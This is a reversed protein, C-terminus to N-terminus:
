PTHKGTSSDLTAGVFARFLPSPRTMRSKFEPHFQVAVFWPHTGRPLEFAEINQDDPSHGVLHLNSDMLLTRFLNNIKYKHRFREYILLEGYAAALLSDPALKIPIAGKRLPAIKEDEEINAAIPVIIPFPTERNFEMSDAEPNNAVNRAFEILACQMGQGIALTPKRSERAYRIAHILGDAGREGYGGPLIIGDLAHLREQANHANIEEAHIWEINVKARNAIGAHKFAETVSYYADRFEVYKGVLGITVTQTPKIQTLAEWEALDPPPPTLGLRGCVIQAFNEKELLLPVEYLCDADTNEIICNQNVHCFQSIKKRMEEGLPKPTRCVLIDPRIGLSRLEKVSHQSPKTKPEGAFDLYPVLTLHIYMANEFGIDEGFQRIAELFPLIEFDGVTGGIETIVIDADHNGSIYYKIADTIHPIIQITKGMFVGKREKNLVEWYVKGASISNNVSLNEDIFREYHGLDLDSEAGDETVFVEGHQYPSLLGPFMNIYPEFKQITVRYGRAKLLRGLSAATIGKGLGSCVGGTMFIYKTQM